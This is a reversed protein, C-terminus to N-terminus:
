SYTAGTDTDAKLQRARDHRRLEERKTTWDTLDAWIEDIRDDDAVSLADVAGPSTANYTEQYTLIRDRIAGVRDRLENITYEQALENIRRWEFYAENREYTVPQQTDYKTVISLEAFWDLYKQATARDCDAREALESVSTSEHTQLVVGYVREEASADDFVPDFAPPGTGSSPTDGSEPM